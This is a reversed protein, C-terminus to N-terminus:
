SDESIHVMVLIMGRTAEGTCASGKSLLQRVVISWRELMGM